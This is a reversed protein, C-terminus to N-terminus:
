LKLMIYLELRLIAHVWIRTKLLVQSITHLFSLYIRLNIKFSSAYQMLFSQKENEELDIKEVM